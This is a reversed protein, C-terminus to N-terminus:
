AFVEDNDCENQYQYRILVEKLWPDIEDVYKRVAKVGM